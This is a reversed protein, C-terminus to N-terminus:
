CSLGGGKFMKMKVAAEMIQDMEMATATSVATTVAMPQSKRMLTVRVLSLRTWLRRSKMRMRRKVKTTLPM